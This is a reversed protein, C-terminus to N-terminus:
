RWDARSREKYIALAGRASLPIEEKHVKQLGPFLGELKAAQAFGLCYAGNGSIVANTEETIRVASSHLMARIDGEIVAGLLYNAMEERSYGQQQRLVRAAFAARALGTKKATKYGLEAMDRRYAAETAFSRGVTDALITNRTLVSLLEGTLTTLCGTLQGGQATIFKTHSGPLILLLAKERPLQELLAVAETEEGRMMDMAEFPDASEIKNKMGPILWIPIQCIEPMLIQKMGAALHSIGVPATLHPLEFLGVNSTIMGSAIVCEVDVQSLGHAELLSRICAGVAAKLRENGGDAASSGAGAEFSSQGLYTSGDKWLVARTNTTGADLTIQYSMSRTREPKGSRLPETM